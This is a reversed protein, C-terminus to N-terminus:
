LQDAPDAESHSCMSEGDDFPGRGCCMWRADILRMVEEQSSAIRTLYEEKSKLEVLEEAQQAGPTTPPPGVKLRCLLSRQHQRCSDPHNDRETYVKACRSCVRERQAEKAESEVRLEDANLPWQDRTFKEKFRSALYPDKTLVVMWFLKNPAPVAVVQDLVSCLVNPRQVNYSFTHQSGEAEDHHTRAAAAPDDNKTTRLRATSHHLLVSDETLSSYSKTVNAVSDLDIIFMGSEYQQAEELCGTIFNLAATDEVCHHKSLAPGDILYVCELRCRIAMHILVYLVEENSLADPRAVGYHEVDHRTKFLNEARECLVASAKRVFDRASDTERTYVQRLEAILEDSGSALATTRLKNYFSFVLERETSLLDLINGGLGDRDMCSDVIVNVFDSIGRSSAAKNDALVPVLTDVVFDHNAIDLNHLQVKSELQRVLGEVTVIPDEFHSDQFIRQESATLRMATSQIINLAKIDKRRIMWQTDVEPNHLRAFIQHQEPNMHRDMTMQMNFQHRAAGSFDVLLRHTCRMREAAALADDGGHLIAVTDQGAKDLMQALKRMMPIDFSPLKKRVSELIDPAFRSGLFIREAQCIRRVFELAEADDIPGEEEGRAEHLMRMLMRMADNSFNITLSVLNEIAQECERPVDQQFRLAESPRRFSAGGNALHQALPIIARSGLPIAHQLMKWVIWKRRAEFSPKGVFFKFEIRRRFAEDMMDFRNTSGFLVLNSVNQNGTRALTHTM